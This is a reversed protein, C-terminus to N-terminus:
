KKLMLRKIDKEEQFGNINSCLYIDNLSLLSMYDVEYTHGCQNCSYVAGFPNSEIYYDHDVPVVVKYDCGDINCETVREYCYDQTKDQPFIKHSFLNCTHYITQVHDCTGCTRHNHGDSTLTWSGYDHAEVSEVSCDCVRKHNKDDVSIYDGFDHNHPDNRCLDGCISCNERITVVDGNIHYYQNGDGVCSDLIRIEYGCDECKETINHKGLMSNTTVSNEVMELDHKKINEHGCTTCTQKCSAANYKQWDSYTCSENKYVDIKDGCTGCTYTAKLMHTGDDNTKYFKFVLISPAETHVHNKTEKYGCESCYREDQNTKSNYKWSGFSCKENFKDKIIYNCGNCHISEVVEHTGNKNSMYNTQARDNLQHKRYKPINCVECFSIENDSDYYKWKNYQHTHSDNKEDDNPKDQPNTNNETNETSNETGQVNETNETSNETGQVNETSDTSNETGQINETSGTSNETGQINESNDNLDESNLETDETNNLITNIDTSCKTAAVGAVGLGLAIILAKLSKSIKKSKDNNKNM